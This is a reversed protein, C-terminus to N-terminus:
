SRTAAAPDPGCTVRVVRGADDGLLLADGDSAVASIAGRGVGGPRAATLAAGGPRVLLVGAGQTGVAVGGRWAVAAGPNEENARPEALRLAAVAGDEALRVVGGDDTGAVAGGPIPALSTVVNTEAPPEGFVLPHWRASRALLPAELDAVAVDYAGSPTGIWLRAGSVALASARLPEGEPGRVELPEAGDEASIRFLGRAGGAYLAAGARALAATGCDGCLTAVPRDGDVAVVGGATAAWVLGDHEALANVFRARGALGEVAHPGDEDVRVLGDDFTGVWLAGDSGRLLATVRRGARLLEEERCPPGEAVPAVAPPAAPAAALVPVALHRLKARHLAALGVAGALLAAAAALIPRARV